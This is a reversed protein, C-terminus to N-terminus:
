KDCFRLKCHKGTCDDLHSKDVNKCTKCKGYANQYNKAYRAQDREVGEFKKKYADTFGSEIKSKDIVRHQMYKPKVYPCGLKKREPSLAKPM